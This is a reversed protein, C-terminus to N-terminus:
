NYFEANEFRITTQRQKDLAVMMQSDDFYFDMTQMWEIKYFTTQDQYIKFGGTTVDGVFFLKAQVPSIVKEQQDDVNMLGEFTVPYHDRKKELSRKDVPSM